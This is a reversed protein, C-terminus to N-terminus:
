WLIEYNEPGVSRSESFGNELKIFIAGPLPSSSFNWEINKNRSDLYDYDLLLSFKCGLVILLESLSRVFQLKHVSIGWNKGVVLQIIGNGSLV